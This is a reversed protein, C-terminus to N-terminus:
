DAVTFQHWRLGNKYANRKEKKFQCLILKWFGYVMNNINCQDTLRETQRDM